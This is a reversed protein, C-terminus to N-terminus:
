RLRCPTGRSTGQEVSICQVTIGLHSTSVQDKGLRNDTLIYEDDSSGSLEFASSIFCQLKLHLILNKRCATSM